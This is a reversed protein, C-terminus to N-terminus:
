VPYLVLAGRLDPILFELSCCSGHCSTAAGKEIDILEHSRNRELLHRAEIQDSERVLVRVGGIADSYLWQVGVIYEDFVVALIGESELKSKALHALSPERFRAVVTLMNRSPEHKDSEPGGRDIFTKGCGSCNEVSHTHETARLSTPLHTCQPHPRRKVM